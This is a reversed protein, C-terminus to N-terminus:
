EVPVNFFGRHEVPESDTNDDSEGDAFGEGANDIEKASV